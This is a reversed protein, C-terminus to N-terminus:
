CMHWHHTEQGGTTRRQATPAVEATVQAAIKLGACGGAPLKVSECERRCGGGRGEGWVWVPSLRGRDYCITSRDKGQGGKKREKEESEEVSCHCQVRKGSNAPLTM